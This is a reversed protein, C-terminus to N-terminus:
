VGPSHRLVRAVCLAGVRTVGGRRLALACASLTAGTTCVDDVIWVESPGPIGSRVVFAGRVNDARDTASAGRQPPDDRTRELVTVLDRDWERALHRAILAAQNFGRTELRERALPVPTICVGQPPVDCRRAILAALEHGVERRGGDKLAGLLTSVPDVYAAAFRLHDVRPPCEACAPTAVAWPHGCRRCGVVELVAIASACAACIVAGPLGCAACTSPVLLDLLGMIRRTARM